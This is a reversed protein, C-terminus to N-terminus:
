KTLIVVVRDVDKSIRFLFTHKDEGYMSWYKAVEFGESKITYCYINNGELTLYHRVKKVETTM